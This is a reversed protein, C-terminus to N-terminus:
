INSDLGRFPSPDVLTRRGLLSLTRAVEMVEDESSQDINTPAATGNSSGHNVEQMGDLLGSPSPIPTRTGLQPHARMPRGTSDAQAVGVGVLRDMSWDSGQLGQSSVPPPPGKVLPPLILNPYFIQPCRQMIKHTDSCNSSTPTRGLAGVSNSLSDTSQSLTSPGHQVHLLSISRQSSATSGAPSTAFQAYQPIVSSLGSPVMRQSSIVNARMKQSKDTRRQIIREHAVARDMLRRTKGHKKKRRTNHSSSLQSGRSGTSLNSAFSAEDDMIYDDVVSTSAISVECDSDINFRNLATALSNTTSCFQKEDGMSTSRPRQHNIHVGHPM